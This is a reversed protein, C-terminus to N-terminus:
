RELSAPTGLLGLELNIKMLSLKGLFASYISTTTLCQCFLYHQMNAQYALRLSLAFVSNVGLSAHVETTGAIHLRM